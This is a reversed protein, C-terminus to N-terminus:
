GQTQSRPGRPGSKRKRDKAAAEAITRLATLLAQAIWPPISDEPLPISPKRRAGADASLPKGPDVLSSLTVELTDAIRQLSELSPQRDGREIRSIADRSLGSEAALQEQSWGREMRLFRIRMAVADLPKNHTTM